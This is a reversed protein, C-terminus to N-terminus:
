RLMNIKEENITPIVCLGSINVLVNPTAININAGTVKISSVVQNRNQIM